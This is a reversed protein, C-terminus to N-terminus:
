APEDSPMLTAFQAALIAALAQTAPRSEGGGKMELAMVGVCGSASLLPTVLAGSRGEAGAVVEVRTERFADSV